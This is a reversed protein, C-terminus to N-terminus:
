RAALMVQIMRVAGAILVRRAWRSNGGGGLASRASRLAAAKRARLLALAGRVEDDGGSDSEEGAGGKALQAAASQADQSRRRRAGGANAAAAHRADTFLRLAADYKTWFGWLGKPIAMKVLGPRVQSDEFYISAVETGGAAAGAAGGPAARVVTCSIYQLVKVARAGGGAAGDDPLDCDRCIAYCGGDAPRHWVRRAYAYERPAMPRPFRSIYRHLCSEAHRSPRAEGAPAVRRVEVVGDDWLQRAQDDLHFPRVDRPAVGALTASTKYMYLGQRLPRRWARVTLGPRSEELLPEWGDDGAAAGAAAAEAEAAAAADRAGYLSGPADWAPPAGLDRLARAAAPEGMAAGFQLLHEDTVQRRIAEPCDGDLGVSALASAAAGPCASAAPCAAGPAPGAQLRTACALRELAERRSPEAAVAGHTYHRSAGDLSARGRGAGAGAGGAPAAASPAPAAMRWGAPVSPWRQLAQLSSPLSPAAPVLPRLLSPVTTLTALSSAASASVWASVAAMSAAASTGASYLSSSAALTAGGPAAAAAAGGASSAFPSAPAAHQQAQHERAASDAGLAALEQGSAIRHMSPRWQAARGRGADADVSPSRQRGHGHHRTAHQQRHAQRQRPTLPGRQGKRPSEAPAADFDVSTRPKHRLEVRDRSAPPDLSLRRAARRRGPWAREGGAGSALPLHRDPIRFSSVERGARGSASAESSADSSPSSPFAAPLAAAGCVSRPTAPESGGADSSAKRSASQAATRRSAFRLYLSSAAQAARGERDGGLTAIALAALALAGAQLPNSAQLHAFRTHARRPALRAAPPPAM